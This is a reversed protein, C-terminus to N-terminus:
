KWGKALGKTMNSAKDHAYAGSGPVWKKNSIDSNIYNVYKYKSIYFKPAAQTGNIFSDYVKYSAPSLSSKEEKKVPSPKYIKAYRLKTDVQNYGNTSYPAQAKGIVACEDIYGCRDSKLRFAGLIKPDHGAHSIKYTTCEPFRDKKAQKEIEVAHTIRPSKSTMTNNKLILNGEIKYATPSPVIKKARLHDDLYHRPAKRYKEKHIGYSIPVNVDHHWLKVEYDKIGFNGNATKKNGLQVTEEVSLKYNRPVSQYRKKDHSTKAGPSAGQLTTQARPGADGGLEAALRPTNRDTQSVM